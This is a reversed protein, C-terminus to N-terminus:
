VDGETRLVIDGIDDEVDLVDDNVGLVGCEVDASGEIEEDLEAVKETSGLEDGDVDVVSESDLVVDEVHEAEM